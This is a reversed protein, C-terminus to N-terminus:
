SSVRVEYVHYSGWGEGRLLCGPVEVLFPQKYNRLSRNASHSRRRHRRKRGGEAETESQSIANSRVRM